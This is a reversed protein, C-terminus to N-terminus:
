ISEDKKIRPRKPKITKDIVVKAFRKEISCPECIQGKKAGSFHSGCEMCVKIYYGENYISRLLTYIVPKNTNVLKSKIVTKWQTFKLQHCKGEANKVYLKALYMDDHMVGAFKEGIVYYNGSLSLHDITVIDVIDIGSCLVGTMGDWLDSNQFPYTIITGVKEEEM